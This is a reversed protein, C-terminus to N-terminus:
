AIYISKDSEDLRKFPALIIWGKATEAMIPIRKDTPDILIKETGIYDMANIFKEMQYLDLYIGNIKYYSKHSKKEKTNMLKRKAKDARLANNFNERNICFIETNNSPKVGNYNPYIGQIEKGDKAIIKGELKESYTCNKLVLLIHTDTAITEGNNHYVGTISPHLIDKKGTYDYLNINGKLAKMGKNTTM